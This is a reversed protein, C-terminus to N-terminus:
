KLYDPMKFRSYEKLLPKGKAVRSFIEATLRADELANHMRGKKIVKGNEVHVRTDKMGAFRLISRLGVGSYGKKIKFKRKIEYYKVAAISHTDLIRYHFPLKLNYKQSKKVFFFYDTTNHCILVKNKTKRVWKFFNKLLDRESIKLPDKLEKETKGIIKEDAKKIEENEDIRCEGFFFDQPYELRIAGIQWISNLSPNFGTIELDAVIM